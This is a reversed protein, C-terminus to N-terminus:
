RGEILLGYVPVQKASITAFRDLEDKMVNMTKVFDYNEGNKAVFGPTKAECVLVAQENDNFKVVM